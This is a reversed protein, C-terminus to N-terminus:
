KGVFFPDKRIGMGLLVWAILGFPVFVIGTPPKVVIAVYICEAIIAAGLAYFSISVGNIKRANKRFLPLLCVRVVPGWLPTLMAAATLYFNALMLWQQTNSLSSTVSADPERVPPAAASAPAARTHRLSSGCLKNIEDLKTQIEDDDPPIITQSRRWKIYEHSACREADKDAARTAGYDVNNSPTPPNQAASVVLPIWVAILISVKRLRLVGNRIGSSVAIYAM